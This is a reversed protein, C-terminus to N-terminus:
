KKIARRQRFKKVFINHVPEDEEPLYIFVRLNGDFYDVALTGVATGKDTKIELDVSNTGNQQRIVLPPFTDEGGCEITNTEKM